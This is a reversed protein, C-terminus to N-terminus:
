APHGPATNGYGKKGGVLALRILHEGRECVRVRWREKIPTNNVYDLAAWEIFFSHTHAQKFIKFDCVVVNKCKWQNEGGISNWKLNVGVKELYVVM